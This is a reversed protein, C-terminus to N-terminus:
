GTRCLACWRPRSPWGAVECAAAHVLAGLGRALADIDEDNMSARWPKAHQHRLSLLRSANHSINSTRSEVSGSRERRRRQHNSRGRQHRGDERAGRKYQESRSTGDHRPIPWGRRACRGVLGVGDLVVVAAAAEEVRASSAEHRAVALDGAIDPVGDPHLTRVPSARHTQRRPSDTSAGNVLQQIADFRPESERRTHALWRVGRDAGPSGGGVRRSGSLYDGAPRTRPHAERDEGEHAHLAAADQSERGRGLQLRPAPVRWGDELLHKASVGGQPGTAGIVLITGDSRDM